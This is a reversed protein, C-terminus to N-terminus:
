KICCMGTCESGGGKARNGLTAAYSRLDLVVLRPLVRKEQGEGGREGGGEEELGVGEAGSQFVPFASSGMAPDM